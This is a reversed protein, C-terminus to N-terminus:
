TRAPPPHSHLTKSGDPSTATTTGNGHLVITWDWRHVAILHHFCCLMLLNDLRTAGGRSRPIIHHVQCAAPPQACGPFACRRDRKAVARRLHPPIQETAAGVDLPLSVGGAAAPHGAHKRWAAALGGPGSLAQTAYRLLTDQLRDFTAPSIPRLRRGHGPDDGAHGDPCAGCGPGVGCGPGQGPNDLADIFAATMAALAAQDVRGCVMPTIQADCAYGQAAAAGRVWGPQGDGAGRAAEALGGGGPLGALAAALGDPQSLGAPGLGPHSAGGSPPGATGPQCGAPALHPALQDLTLHLQIQTAQGARDPLGGAGILRRCAEELADHDRQAQTRDDEPGAKKGLSELVAALAAACEPTLNGDLKGAGRFHTALRLSRRTFGDDGDPDPPACRRYMEEALGALDALDAGGGAAALLIQDADARFGEPLQDSWYCLCRAWSGSVQGAALADSVLPHAGLRRMWGVSERAAGRTVRAQWMLWSGPSCQGDAELGGNSTFGALVRAHVATQRAQAREIARLV